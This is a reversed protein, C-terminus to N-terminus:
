RSAAKALGESVMAENLNKGDAFLVGLWPIEAGRPAPFTKVRLEGLETADRLKETLWVMAKRAEETGNAPAEIGALRIKTKHLWVFFGLDFDLAVTSADVVQQLEARYLYLAADGPYTAGEQATVAGCLFAASLTALM